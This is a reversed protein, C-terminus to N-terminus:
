GDLGGYLPKSYSEPISVLYSYPELIAFAKEKVFAIREQFLLSWLLVCGQKEVLREIELCEAGGPPNEGRYRFPPHPHTM